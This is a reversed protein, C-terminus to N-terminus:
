VGPRLSASYSSLKKDLFAVCSAGRSGSDLASVILGGRTVYFCPQTESQLSLCFCTCIHFTLVLSEGFTYVVIRKGVGIGNPCNSDSTSSKKHYEDRTNKGSRCLGNYGLAFFKYGKDFALEACASIVEQHKNEAVLSKFDGLTDPLFSKETNFCAIKSFSPVLFFHFVTFYRQYNKETRSSRIAIIYPFRSVSSWDSFFHCLAGLPTETIRCM